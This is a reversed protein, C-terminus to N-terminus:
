RKKKNIQRRKLAVAKRNFNRESENKLRRYLEYRQVTLSGAEIAAKIACGPETNHRCDKFKCRSELEVIYAFTDDIGEEADCMGLERMGPTDVITVGDPLINNLM